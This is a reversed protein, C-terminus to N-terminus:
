IAFTYLRSQLKQPLCLRGFEKVNLIKVPRDEFIKIRYLLHRDSVIVEDLDEYVLLRSEEKGVTLQIDRLETKSAFPRWLEEFPDLEIKTDLGNAKMIAEPDLDEGKPGSSIDQALKAHKSKELEEMLFLIEEKQKKINMKELFLLREREEMEELKEKFRRVTEEEDEDRTQVEKNLMGKSPKQGSGELRFESVEEECLERSFIKGLRENIQDLERKKQESRNEFKASVPSTRRQKSGRNSGLREPSRTSLDFVFGGTETRKKGRVEEQVGYNAEHFNDLIYNLDAQKIEKKLVSLKSESSLISNEVRNQLEKMLSGLNQSKVHIEEQFSTRSDEMEKIKRNISADIENIKKMHLDLFQEHLGLNFIQSMKKGPDQRLETMVGNEFVGYKEVKDEGIFMALGHPKDNLWEGKYELGDYIMLGVGQKTDKRWHGFYVRSDRTMELGLGERKGLEWSGIYFSGDEQELRGLGQRLGEVFNGTYVSNDRQHIYRGYGNKLNSLFSGQYMDKNKFKEVGFGEREGAVWDGLYSGGDDKYVGIGHRSHEFFEGVYQTGKILEEGKGHYEGKAFGGTYRYEHDLSEICGFGTISGSKFYGQTRSGREHDVVACFGCVEGELFNGVITTSGDEFRGLGSKVGRVFEGVYKENGPGSQKGFGNMVGDYWEGECIIRPDESLFCGLGQIKGNKFNGVYMDGNNFVNYGVGSTPRM